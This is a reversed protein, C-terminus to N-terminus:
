AIFILYNSKLWSKNKFQFQIEVCVSQSAKRKPKYMTLFFSLFICRQKAAYGPSSGRFGQLNMPAIAWMNHGKSFYLFLSFCWFWSRGLMVPLSRCNPIPTSKSKKHSNKEPGVRSFDTELMCPMILSVTYDRM